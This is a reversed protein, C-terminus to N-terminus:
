EACTSAEMKTKQAKTSQSIVVALEHMCADVTTNSYIIPEGDVEFVGEQYRAFIFRYLIVATSDEFVATQFKSNSLIIELVFGNSAHKYSFVSVVDPIAYVNITVADILFPTITSTCISKHVCSHFVKSCMDMFKALIHFFSMGDQNNEIRFNISLFRNKELFSSIASDLEKKTSGFHLYTALERELNQSYITKGAPDLLLPPKDFLLYLLSISSLDVLFDTSGINNAAAADSRFTRYVTVTKTQRSLLTGVVKRLQEHNSEAILKDWDLTIPNKLARPDAGINKQILDLYPEILHLYSASIVLEPLLVICPAGVMSADARGGKHIASLVKYNGALSFSKAAKTEALRHKLYDCRSFM